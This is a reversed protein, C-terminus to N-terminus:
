QSVGQSDAVKPNPASPAQTAERRKYYRKAAWYSLIMPAAFFLIGKPDFPVYQEWKPLYRDVVMLIAMVIPASLFVWLYAWRRWVGSGFMMMLGGIFMLPLAVVPRLMDSPGPDLSVALSIGGIWVAIFGGVGFVIFRLAIWLKKALTQPGNKGTMQIGSM